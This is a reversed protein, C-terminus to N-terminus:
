GLFHIFYIWFSMLLSLKVSILLFLPFPLPQHLALLAPSHRASHVSDTLSLIGWAMAVLPFCWQEPTDDQSPRSPCEGQTLDETHTPMQTHTFFCLIFEQKWVDCACFYHSVTFDNCAAWQTCQAEWKCVCVCVCVPLWAILVMMIPKQQQLYFFSHIVWPPKLLMVALVSRSNAKRAYVTHNFCHLYLLTDHTNRAIIRYSINETETAKERETISQFRYVDDQSQICLRRQFSQFLLNTFTQVSSKVKVQLALILKTDIWSVNSALLHHVVTESAVPM